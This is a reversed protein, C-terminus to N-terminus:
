RCRAVDRAHTNETSSAEKYKKDRVQIDETTRYVFTEKLIENQVIFKGEEVISLKKSVEINRAIESKEFDNFAFVYNM